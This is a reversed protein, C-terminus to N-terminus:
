RAGEFVLDLETGQLRKAHHLHALFAAPDVWPMRLKLDPKGSSEIVLAGSPAVRVRAIGSIQVDHVDSRSWLRLSDGELTVRSVDKRGLWILLPAFGILVLLTLASSLSIGHKLASWIGLGSFISVWLVVAITEFLRHRAGMPALSGKFAALPARKVAFGIAPWAQAFGLPVMAAAKPGVVRLEGTSTIDTVESWPLEAQRKWRTVVLGQQDVKLATRPVLAMAVIVGVCSITGGWYTFTFYSKQLQNFHEPHPRVALLYGLGAFLSLGLMWLARILGRERVTIGGESGVTEFVYDKRHLVLGLGFLAMGGWLVINRVLEKEM